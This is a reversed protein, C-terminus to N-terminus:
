FTLPFAVRKPMTWRSDGLSTTEAGLMNRSRCLRVSHFHVLNRSYRPAKAGVRISPVRRILAIQVPHRKANVNETHRSILRTSLSTPPRSADPPEDLVHYDRPDRYGSRDTAVRYLLHPKPNAIPASVGIPDIVRWSTRTRHKANGTAAAVNIATNHPLPGTLASSAPLKVLM